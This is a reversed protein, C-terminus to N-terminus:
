RSGKVEERLYAVVIELGHRQLHRCLALLHLEAGGVALTNILHLVKM